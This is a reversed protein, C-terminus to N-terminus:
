DHAEVVFRIRDPPNAADPAQDLPHGLPISLLATELPEERLGPGEPPAEPLYVPISPLFAKRGLCMQWLPCRLARDLTQLLPQPGELGVLFHAGALYYRTSILADGPKGSAKLVGYPRGNWGYANFYPIL